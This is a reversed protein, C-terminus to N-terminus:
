PRHTRPRCRPSGCSRWPRPTPGVAPKRSLANWLHDGGDAPRGVRTTDLQHAGAQTSDLQQLAPPRPAARLEFEVPTLMGLASHRRPRTHFIVLYELIADALEPRTRWGRRNLPETQMRGWFSEIMANDYRDGITGM